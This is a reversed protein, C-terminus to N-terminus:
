RMLRYGFMGSKSRAFLYLGDATGVSQITAFYARDAWGHADSWPPADKAVLVWKGRAPDLRHTVMGDKGRGLLFLRGGAEVGHLTAYRSASNWGHDDGDGPANTAAEVWSKTGRDLRLIKTGANLRALLYLTGGAEVAQITTYNSPDRWGYSDSWRPDNGAAREWRRSHPDLWLTIMGRNARALLYLGHDTGVAQITAYNTIDDWRAADSWEPDDRAAREWAGKERDLRLTIMGRNARALLYLEGGAEVAQITRYNSADAWAHDNSWAPDNRAARRWRRHAKDLRLTVIGSPARAVLYLTGDVAVAQITSYSAMQNWGADDSWQPDNDAARRWQGSPALRYTKLGHNARAILYLDAGVAVAQITDYNSPDDWGHADSWNPWGSAFREWRWADEPDPAPTAAMLADLVQRTLYGTAPLDARRQFDAIAARTAADFVGDIRGPPHGAADLREEVRLRTARVLHLQRETEAARLTAIRARAEQAFLGDPFEALYNRYAAIDDHARATDWANRDRREQRAQREAAIEKLRERAVDSYLGNPYRHLYRRLGAEDAGAGTADWFLRDRREVERRRREAEARINAAHAEGQQRLLAAQEADLYGTVAFGNRDQWASIAARTGRGFIGDIASHYDGLLLLHKQLARREDHSLRLAEEARRARRQEDVLLRSVAAEAEAAYRGEPFAGLYARFAEVTNEETVLAWLRGEFSKPSPADPLIAGHTPGVHVHLGPPAQRLVERLDAGPVLVRDSLFPAVSHLPGALFHADRPLVDPALGNTLDPGVRVDGPADIAVVLAPADRGSALDALAGISLGQQAVFAGPVGADVALLFADRRNSIIQGAALILLRDAEEAHRAAVQMERRLRAMPADEIVRVEYGAEELGPVLDLIRSMAPSSRHVEYTRQVLLVALDGAKTTGPWSVLLGILLLILHRM